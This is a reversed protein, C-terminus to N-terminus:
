LMDSIFYIFILLGDEGLPLSTAGTVIAVFICLNPLSINEIFFM